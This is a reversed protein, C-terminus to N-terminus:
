YIDDHSGALLIYRSKECVTLNSRKGHFLEEEILEM